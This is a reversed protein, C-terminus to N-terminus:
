QVIGAYRKGVSEWSFQGLIDQVQATDIGNEYQLLKGLSASISNIDLPDVAQVFPFDFMGDIGQRRTHLVACGQSLAELYVLGFTETISPMAFVRSTRYIEKLREKDRITGLVRVFGPVARALLEALEHAEGGVLVLELDPCDDLLLECAEVLRKLNKNKNFRGVYCIRTERFSSSNEHDFWFSELGNPIVSTRAASEYLKPFRCRFTKRHAESVFVLAHSRRIMLKMLWRYHPLSPIFVNIDTNRVVLTFKVKKFFSYFFVVMGDSWFNHALVAKTRKNSFFRNLASFALFFVCTVKVLPLFRLIRNRYFVPTLSVTSDSEDSVGLEGRSRVPIIFAQTQFQSRMHDGILKHVKSSTYNNCVHILDVASEKIVDDSM